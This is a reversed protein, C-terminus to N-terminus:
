CHDQCQKGLLILGLLDIDIVGQLALKAFSPADKDLLGKRALGSAGMSVMGQKKAKFQMAYLTFIAPLLLAQRLDVFSLKFM